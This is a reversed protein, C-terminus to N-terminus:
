EIKIKAINKSFYIDGKFRKLAEEIFVLETEGKKLTRFILTMLDGSGSVEGATAGMRAYGILLCEFNPNNITCSTYPVASAMTVTGKEDQRLFDGEETKLFALFNKDFPVTMATGFLGKVNEVRVVVKIMEGEMATIRAPAFLLKAEEAIAINGGGGLVVMMMFVALGLMLLRKM